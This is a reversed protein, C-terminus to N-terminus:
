GRIQDLVATAARQIRNRLTADQSPLQVGDMYYVPIDVHEPGAAVKTIRHAPPDVKAATFV